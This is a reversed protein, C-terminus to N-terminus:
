EARPGGESSGQFLQRAQEKTLNDQAFKLMASNQSRVIELEGQVTKLVGSLANIATTQTARVQRDAKEAGAAQSDLRDKTFMKL